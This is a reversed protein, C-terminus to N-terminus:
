YRVASIKREWDDCIARTRSEAAGLYRAPDDLVALQEPTMKALYSAISSDARLLQSLPRMQLRADRALERAKEHGAPHGHMALLVYLPEATIPDKGADLLERMRTVDPEVAELTQSLRRIAYAFAAVHEMVFRM